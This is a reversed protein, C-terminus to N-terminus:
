PSQPFKRLLTNQVVQPEAVDQLLLLALTLTMNFVCFDNVRWMDTFHLVTEYPSRPFKTDKAESPSIPRPKSTLLHQAM